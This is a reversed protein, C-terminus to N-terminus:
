IKRKIKNYFWFLMKPKKFVQATINKMCLCLIFAFVNPLLVHSWKEHYLGYAFHHAALCLCRQFIDDTQSCVSLWSQKVCIEYTLTCVDKM